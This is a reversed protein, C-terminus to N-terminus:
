ARRRAVGALVPTGPGLRSRRLEVVEFGAADIAALTQRNVHCGGAMLRWLPAIADHLRGWVGEGRVHEIFRLEGGPRLVRHLEALSAAQDRVTCLVLTVVATDFSADAFPLVEAAAQEWRVALGLREARQRARRLMNPDPETLTLRVDAPYFPLSAGTGGGVELTDGAAGGVVWRRLPALRVREFGRMARDYAAAFIPHDPTSRVM